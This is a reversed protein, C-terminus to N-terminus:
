FSVSVSAIGYRSKLAPGMPNVFTDYWYGKVEHQELKFVLNPSLKYNLALAADRSVTMRPAAIAGSLTMDTSEYQGVVMLKETVKVGLQAYGFSLHADDMSGTKYEGRVLFRNFDGDVSAMVTHDPEEGHKWRMASLAVRLGQLPTSLWLQGGVSNEFRFMQPYAGAPTQFVNKYETGGWYASSELSWDGFVLNHSATVGDVTETGDAYLQFPARFMPLVTGVDRVENYIGGALPFRGVRVSIPGLQRQYFAWDFELNEQFGMLPSSALRRHSVQLVLRDKPSVEFSLQVAAARYDSTTTDTLGYLPKSARAVGQTLYGHVSLRPDLGIQAQTGSPVAAVALSVATAALMLKPNRM